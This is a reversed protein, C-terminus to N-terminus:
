SPAAAWAQRAANRREAAAALEERSQFRDAQPHAAHAAAVFAAVSGRGPAQEEMTRLLELASELLPRPAAPARQALAVLLAGAEAAGAAGQAEWIGQAGALVREPAHEGAQLYETNFAEVSPAALPPIHAGLREVEARVEAPVAEARALALHFRVFKVHLAPSAADIAYGQALARLALRWRQERLALEFVSLWTGLHRPAAEQLMRAFRHADQLPSASAALAEGYPDPDRPPADPDDNAPQKPPPAKPEAARAEAARAEAKRAKQAAKRQEEESLQSGGAADAPPAAAAAARTDHLKVHLRIAGEAAAISAPHAFIGDEFRVTDTYTRLTMKRMCYSHFDLQDDYIDQVTKHIQHYRKLALATDGRREHARADEMLFGLAQMELLDAMPDPVDPKTFLKLVREAEEVHNIRLLYKAAKTNLYRDQGDLLRACEMADAAAEYAGARKLIRARTMQLEPMTPTHALASDIYQLARQAQGTYSYHHALCYVVWLYSSPPEEGNSRPDWATRFEELIRELAARKAVNSYLPKIDSFLSPINKVLAREVYARAHRQFADGEAFQLALRRLITSRPYEDQLGELLALAKAAGAETTTDAAGYAALLSLVHAKNEPNRDVLSRWAAQADEESGLAQLARARLEERATTDTIQSHRPGDLLDLVGRPEGLKELLRAHFLLVESFEYNRAPVDRTVDEYACLVRVAEGLNGALEHAVALAVWTSRLHPQMRLLTLRADILPAYHRLQLHMFASERLLNVNGGEIRLAMSYCKISEEYNRDMRYLIGLAHWCIFSSLDNRLGQKALALGEERQHLTFLVLGKLSLTEAHDPAKKLIADATKIAPKHKRGEYEQILRTFLAREKVGLQTRKPPM